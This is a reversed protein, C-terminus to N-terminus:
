ELYLEVILILIIILVELAFISLTGIILNDNKNLLKNFIKNLM